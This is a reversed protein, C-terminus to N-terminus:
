SNSLRYLSSCTDKSKGKVLNKKQHEHDFDNGVKCGGPAVQSNCALVEVGTSHGVRLDGCVRPGEKYCCHVLGDMFSVAAVEELVPLLLM